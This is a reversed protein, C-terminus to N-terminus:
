FRSVYAHRPVPPRSASRSVSGLAAKRAKQESRQAMCERRRSKLIARPESLGVNDEIWEGVNM